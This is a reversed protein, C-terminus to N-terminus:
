NPVSISMGKLVANNHVFQANCLENEDDYWMGLRAKKRSKSV